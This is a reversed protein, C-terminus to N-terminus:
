QKAHSGRMSAAKKAEAMAAKLDAQAKVAAAPIVVAPYGANIIAEALAKGNTKADDYVVVAEGRELSADAKIVGDVRRLASKVQYPCSQCTMGDVKLTAKHEGARAAMPVALIFIATAVIRLNHM